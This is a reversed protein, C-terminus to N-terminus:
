KEKNHINITLIRKNVSDVCFTIGDTSIEGLDGSKLMENDISNPYKKIISCSTDTLFRKTIYLENSKHPPTVFIRKLILNDDKEGSFNFELFKFKVIKYFIRIDNSNGDADFEECDAHEIEFTDKINVIKCLDAPTSKYLLISDKAFMIGKGPVIEIKSEEVTCSFLGLAVLFLIYIKTM